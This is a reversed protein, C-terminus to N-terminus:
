PSKTSKVSSMSSWSASLMSARSVPVFHRSVIKPTPLWAPAGIWSESPVNSLNSEPCVTTAFDFKALIALSARMDLLKNVGM